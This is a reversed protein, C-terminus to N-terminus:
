FTYRVGIQLSVGGYKIPGGQAYYLGPDLEGDPELVFDCVQPSIACNSNPPAELRPMLQGGDVLGGSILFYPGFQLSALDVGGVGINDTLQPVESGLSDAGNFGIRMERSAFVYRMDMFVAWKKKFALEAGGLLHYEYTDRADIRAGDVDGSVTNATDIFQGGPGTTIITQGGVSADMRQSLLNLEASPDFGIVVYGVGAGLYPNFSARPRFRAVLSAQIPIQTMEGATFRYITFNFDEEIPIVIRPFQAQVEIEGVDGKQYGASGELLWTINKTSRFAYQLAVTARDAPKITLDNFVASDDRPDEFVAFLQDNDDLLFLQNAASSPVEDQTNYGGIAVSLRIKKAVDAALAPVALALAVIAM